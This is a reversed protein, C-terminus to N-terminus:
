IGERKIIDKQSFSCKKANGKEIHYARDCLVEIDMPNHSSLIVIKGKERELILRTRLRETMQCDLGNFPEDLILISKDEMLAQAVGLRQRMGLSYKKVPLKSDPDLGVDAMCEAISETSCGKNIAALIELNKKGSYYPIFGPTEIIVGMNTNPLERADLGDIRISGTYSTIFGCICKMILTKGSGNPGVLGIISNDPLEMCIHQLLINNKIKLNLDSITIM